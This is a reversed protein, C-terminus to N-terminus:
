LGVARDRGGAGSGLDLLHLFHSSRCLMWADLCLFVLNLLSLMPASRGQPQKRKQIQNKQAQVRPYQAPHRVKRVQFLQGGQEDLTPWRIEPGATFSVM